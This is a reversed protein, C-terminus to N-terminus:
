GASAVFKPNPGDSGRWLYQTVALGSARESAPSTPLPWRLARYLATRHVDFAGEILRGYSRAASLVWVYYSASTVVAAIALAWWALPTWVVFLAGWLWATAASDLRARARTLEARTSAPLTVWFTPWVKVADLGYKDAPWSEAGRLINGLRTPMLREARAPYDRLWLDLDRQEDREVTTATGNDIRPALAEWRKQRLAIRAGIRRVLFRRAPAVPRPWYGELLRLGPLTLQKVVIGSATILLLVSVALAGQVIGPQGSLWPEFGRWAYLADGAWLWAALGGTWFAIAPTFIAAVWRDALKTGVGGLLTALV